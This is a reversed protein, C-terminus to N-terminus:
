IHALALGRAQSMVTSGVRKDKPKELNFVNEPIYKPFTEFAHPNDARYKSSRAIINSSRLL